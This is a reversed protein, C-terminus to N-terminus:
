PKKNDIFDKTNSIMRYTYRIEDEDMDHLLSTTKKIIDSSNYRVSDRLLYDTNVNLANAIKVLTEVSLKRNGREIIGIYAPSIGCAESLEEQSLGLQKRKKRVREGLLRYVNM